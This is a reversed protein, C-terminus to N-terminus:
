CRLPAGLGNRLDVDRPAYTRAHNLARSPSPPGYASRLSERDPTPASVAARRAAVASLPKAAAHTEEEEQAAAASAAFPGVGALCGTGSMGMGVIALLFALLASLPQRGSVRTM